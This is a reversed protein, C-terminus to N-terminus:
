EGSFADSSCYHIYVKFYDHYPNTAPDDAWIGGERELVDQGPATCLGSGLCRAQYVGEGPRV